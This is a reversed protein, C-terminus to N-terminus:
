RAEGAAHLGHGFPLQGGPQRPLRLLFQVFEGATEVGHSLRQLALLLRDACQHVLQKLQLVPLPFMNGPNQVIVKALIKGADPDRAFLKSVVGFEDGSSGHILLVKGSEQDKVLTPAGTMTYGAEHDAFKERWIIDGTDKDLAVIGADLTGFFVKDGFIAAGRNVVDCCPRIGEPLRHNYEWLREGTKADLAWLRSYSGTIYIVGDHVLAQSEQGRQKEDGFSFSWAPVLREVNDRNVTTMPSYRQAKPGVGYGLVNEPTQADNAIDEWTVEKAYGTTALSVAGGLALAMGIGRLLPRKHTKSNM